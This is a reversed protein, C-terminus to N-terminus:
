RLMLSTRIRTCSSRSRVRYINEGGRIVMDKLRRRDVRLRRFGDRWTGHADVRGTLPRRPRPPCGWVRDDGLVATCLEGAEGRLVMSGSAPDIVKVEVHPMVRGVTSVRRSVSDDSRTQTSVPSTETMGYCIAVERMSMRDMVQKMIEAPCPSGAM